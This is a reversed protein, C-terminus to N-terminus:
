DPSVIHHDEYLLLRQSIKGHPDVEVIEATSRRELGDKGRKETTNLVLKYHNAPDNSELLITKPPSFGLTEPAPGLTSPLRGADQVSDVVKLKDPMSIDLTYEIYGKNMGSIRVREQTCEMRHVQFDLISVEGAQYIGKESGFRVVRLVHNAKLGRAHFSRLEFALYGKSSCFFGDNDARAPPAFLAFLLVLSGSWIAVCTAVERHQIKLKRNGNRAPAM